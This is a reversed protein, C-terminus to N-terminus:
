LEEPNGLTNNEPFKLFGSDSSNKNHKNKNNCSNTRLLIEVCAKDVRDSFLNTARHMITRVGRWAPSRISPTPDSNPTLHNIQAEGSGSQLWDGIFTLVFIRFHASNQECVLHHAPSDWLKLKVLYCPKPTRINSLSLPPQSQLPTTQGAATTPGQSGAHRQSPAAQQTVWGLDPPDQLWSLVGPSGGDYM